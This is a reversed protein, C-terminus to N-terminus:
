DKKEKRTTSSDGSRSGGSKSASRSRTGADSKSGGGSDSKGGGGPESKSAGGSDAKSAGGSEPKSAGGSEAKAGPGADAAPKESKAKEKYSDSRYDTIYFGSGRFLLGAGGTPVREAKGRCRPCRRPTDDKISHFLEYQHGCKKCRYEYTPM